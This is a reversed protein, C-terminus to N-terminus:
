PLYKIAADTGRKPIERTRATSWLIGTRTTTRIGKAMPIRYEWKLIFRIKKRFFRAMERPTLAVRRMTTARYMGGGGCPKGKKANENCADKYVGDNKIDLVDGSGLVVPDARADDPVAPLTGESDSDTGPLPVERLSRAAGDRRHERMGSLESIAGAFGM